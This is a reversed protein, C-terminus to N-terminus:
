DVPALQPRFVALMTLFIGTCLFGLLLFIKVALPVPSFVVAIPVFGGAWLYEKAHVARQVFVIAGVCIVIDVLFEFSATFRSLLPFLCCAPLAAWNIISTVTQIMTDGKLRGVFCESTREFSDARDM